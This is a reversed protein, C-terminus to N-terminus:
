TLFLSARYICFMQFFFSRCLTTFPPFIHTLCAESDKILMLHSKPKIDGVPTCGGVCVGGCGVGGM